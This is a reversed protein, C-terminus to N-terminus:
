LKLTTLQRDTADGPEDYETPTPSQKVINTPVIKIVDGSPIAAFNHVELVSLFVSYIEDADLPGGSVLTVKGKVRPDVIFNRGTVESVTNILARIDVSQFNLTIQEGQAAATDQSQNSTTGSQAWLSGPLSLMGAIAVPIVLSAIRTRRFIM